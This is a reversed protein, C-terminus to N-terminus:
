KKENMILLQWMCNPKIYAMIVFKNQFWSFWRVGGAGNQKSAVSAEPHLGPRFAILKKQKGISTLSGL